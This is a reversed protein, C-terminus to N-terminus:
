KLKTAKVLLHETGTKAEILYMGTPLQSLIGSDIRYEIKAGKVGGAPIREFLVRTGDIRYMSVEIPENAAPQLLLTLEGHFPNPLISLLQRNTALGPDGSVGAPDFQISVSETSPAAIGSTNYVIKYQIYRSAMEPPISGGNAVLTWPSWGTNPDPNGGTRVYVYLNTNQPIEGSHLLTGWRCGESGDFISSVYAESLSRNHVNGINKTSLHGYTCPLLTSNTDSFGSQSGYYVYSNGYGTFVIDPYHCDGPPANNRAVKGIMVGTAAFVPLESRAAVSYGQESGWYIYSNVDNTIDDKWNAFVLDSWGDLNLDAAAVSNASQTPLGTRRSENFTGTSDGWYIYSDRLYTTGNFHNCFIIDLFGDNNLDYIANGYAGETYLSDMNGSSYGTSGGWYIYSHINLNFSSTQRNSFVIDLYGDENLDAVSCSIGGQTPLETRNSTSFGTSSGWYIYSNVEHYSGSGYNSFIIDLRNDDNLDAVYVGHSGLTPLLSKNAESYGQCSGWYISSNSSGSTNYSSFVIDLYGDNNLDAVANGTAGCTALATRNLTDYGQETGWYIFSPTIFNQNQDHMNSVIIDPRGDENLDYIADQKVMLMGSATPCINVNYDGDIFDSHSSEIWAGGSASSAALAVTAIAFLFNKMKFEKNIDVVM